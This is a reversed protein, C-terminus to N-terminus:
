LLPSGASGVRTTADYYITSTFVGVGSPNRPMLEDQTIMEDEDKDFAALLKIGAQLERASLRGDNDADLLKFLVDNVDSPPQRPGGIYGQQIVVEGGFDLWIQNQLGRAVSHVHFARGGRGTLYKTFEDPSMPPTFRVGSEDTVTRVLVQASNELSGSAFLLYP